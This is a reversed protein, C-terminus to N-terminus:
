KVILMKKTVYKDDAILTYYYVGSNLNLGGISLTVKNEGTKAV